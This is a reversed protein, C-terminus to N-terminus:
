GLRNLIFDARKSVSLKPLIITEYGLDSYDRLLREYEEIAAALDHQREGDTVYIEPWPPTLFVLPNYRHKQKLECLFGDGCVHHLASAADILGRDFFVWGSDPANDLDALAMAVARRAFAEMDIWPLATGQQETEQRVIRRGPEEVTTYGRKALEDLLTSKGGGSCGSLVILNNTEESINM